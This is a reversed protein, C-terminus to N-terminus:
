KKTNQQANGCSGCPVCTEESAGAVTDLLLKAHHSEIAPGVERALNRLEFTLMQQLEMAQHRKLTALRQAEMELVTNGAGRPTTKNRSTRGACTVLLSSSRASAQGREGDEDPCLSQNPPAASSATEASSWREQGEKNVLRERERCVQEAANMHVPPVPILSPWTM